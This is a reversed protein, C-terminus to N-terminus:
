FSLLAEDSLSALVVNGGTYVKPGINVIRRTEPAQLDPAAAGSRNRLHRAINCFISRLDPRYVDAM